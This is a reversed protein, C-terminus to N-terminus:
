ALSCISVRQGSYLRRMFGFMMSTLRESLSWARFVWIMSSSRLFLYFLASSIVFGAAGSISAKGSPSPPGSQPPYPQNGRACSPQITKMKVVIARLIKMALVGVELSADAFHDCMKSIGRKKPEERKKTPYFYYCIFNANFFLM